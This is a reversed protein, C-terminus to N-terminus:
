KKLITDIRDAIEDTTFHAKILYDNAGLDMARKVDDEQGLNSLMIVPVAAAQRDESSRIRKLVQFGDISPLIIDLLVIHPKIKTFAKIAQLGDVAEYVTYGEKTLKKGCIERLFPDDEVLLVNLNLKRATVDERPKFIFDDVINENKNELYNKVKKSVEAPEFQTKILYDVAGLEQTKEIEVPQGSNSIIIVPVNLGEEKIRGLVEYGNMKPMIIDLLVLDPHESKIKNFGEEGDSARMVQYGDKELKNSILHMLTVEDEIILVKFKGKKNTPM